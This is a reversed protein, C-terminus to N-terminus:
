YTKSLSVVFHPWHPQFGHGKQRSDLARGSLWQAGWFNEHASKIFSDANKLNQLNKIESPDPKSNSTLLNDVRLIRISKEMCISVFLM